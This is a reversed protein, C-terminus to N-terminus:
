SLPSQKAPWGFQKSKALATFATGATASTTIQWDCNAPPAPLNFYVLARLNPLKKLADPISALWDAKAQPQGPREITGYEALMFPKDGFGNSQLWQYFPSITQTFSLWPKNRCSAFNYPDWAVWDVVNDGPWMQKYRAQWVPDSLGMMDWVWKVNSAGSQRSRKVVHQFAAAFDAASGHQHFQLEPEHSFSVLVPTKLAALRKAEADIVADQKGAAISAWSMPTNMRDNPEWNLLLLHGQSALTKESATPFVDFWRHYTHVIDLRRQTTQEETAVATVLQSQLDPLASGWWSGCTPSSAETVECKTGSPRYLVLGAGILVALAAVASIVVAKPSPKAM